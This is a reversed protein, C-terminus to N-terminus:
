PQCNLLSIDTVLHTQDFQPTSISISTSEYSSHPHLQLQPNYISDMWYPSSHFTKQTTRSSMNHIVSPTSNSPMGFGIHFLVGILLLFYVTSVYIRNSFMSLPTWYEGSSFLTSVFLTFSETLRYM